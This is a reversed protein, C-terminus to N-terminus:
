RREWNLFAVVIPVLSAALVCAGNAVHGAGIMVAGAGMSAVGVAVFAVVEPKV